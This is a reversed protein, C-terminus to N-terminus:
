IQVVAREIKIIIIIIINTRSGERNQLGRKTHINKERKIRKKNRTDPLFRCFGMHLANLYSFGM